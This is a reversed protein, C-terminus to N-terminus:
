PEIGLDERVLGVDTNGIGYWTGDKLTVSTPTHWDSEIDPNRAMAEEIRDVIEEAEAKTDVALDISGAGAGSSGFSERCAADASEVGEVSMVTEKILEECDKNNYSCAALSISLGLIGCGALIRDVGAQLKNTLNM